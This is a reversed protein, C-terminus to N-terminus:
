CMTLVLASSALGEFTYRSDAVSNQCPKELTTKCAVQWCKCLLMAHHKMMDVMFSDSDHTELPVVRANLPINLGNHV